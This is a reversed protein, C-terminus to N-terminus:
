EQDIYAEPSLVKGSKGMLGHKVGKFQFKRVEYHESNRFYQVLFDKLYHLLIVKSAHTKILRFMNRYTYYALVKKLQPHKNSSGKGEHIVKSSGVWYSHIGKKLLRLCYDTEEFYLFFSTDIFGHEKIISLPILLSYGVLNAVKQTGEKSLEGLNMEEFSCLEDMIGKLKWIVEKNAQGNIDLSASGFLGAGKQSWAKLLEALTDPLVTLDNNLLWIADYNQALAYNVAKLHGHAYGLNETNEFIIINNWISQFQSPNFDKSANDTLCVKLKDDKLIYLSKLLSATKGESNWNLISVLIKLSKHEKTEFVDYYIRLGDLV